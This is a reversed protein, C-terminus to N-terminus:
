SPRHPPAPTSARAPSTGSRPSPPQSLTDHEAHPPPAAGLAAALRRRGARGPPPLSMSCCLSCHRGVAGESVGSLGLTTRLISLSPTAAIAEAISRYCAPRQRGAGATANGGGGGATANGAVTGATGNAGPLAAGPQATSAIPAGGIGLQPQQGAAGAGGVALSYPLTSQLSRGPLLM